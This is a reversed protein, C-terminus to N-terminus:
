RIKLSINVNFFIILKSFVNVTINKYKKKIDFFAVQSMLLSSSHSNFGSGLFPNLWFHVLNKKM